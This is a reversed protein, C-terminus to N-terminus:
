ASILFGIVILYASFFFFLRARAESERARKASWPQGRVLKEQMKTITPGAAIVSLGGIVLGMGGELLTVLSTYYLVVQYDSALYSVIIINFLVLIDCLLLAKLSLVFFVRLKESAKM